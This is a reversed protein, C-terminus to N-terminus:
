GPKKKSVSDLLKRAEKASDSNPFRRLLEELRRAGNDKDNLDDRDLWRKAWKLLEGAKEEEVKRAAAAKEKADREAKAKQSDERLMKEKLELEKAEQEKQIRIAAQEDRLRIAKKTEEDQADELKRKEAEAIARDLHATNGHDGERERISATDDSKLTDASVPQNKPPLTRQDLSGLNRSFIGVMLVAVVVLILGPACGISTDRSYCNPCKPSLNKGRPYWTHGCSKCYNQPRLTGRPISFLNRRGM